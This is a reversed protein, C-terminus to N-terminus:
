LYFFFLQSLIFFEPRPQSCYAQSVICWHDATKSDLLCEFWGHAFKTLKQILLGITESAGILNAWNMDPFWIPTLLSKSSKIWIHQELCIAGVYPWLTWVKMEWGRRKKAILSFKTCIDCTFRVPSYPSSSLLPRKPLSRASLKLFPDAGIQSLTFVYFGIKFCVKDGDSQCTLYSVFYIHYIHIFSYNYLSQVIPQLFITNTFMQLFRISKILYIWPITIQIFSNYM